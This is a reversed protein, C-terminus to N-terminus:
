SIRFERKPNREILSLTGNELIFRIQCHNLTSLRHAIIFTTRGKMLRGLAEVILSETQIDVSSTPEDLILIPTNKLFARALAIRQREGGSLTMGREGIETNYGESLNKIFEHANAQKAAEVIQAELADPQGYSINERVTTAFLIPEQLVISFQNRLDAIRYNRIDVGDLYICGQDPDYFRLLLSMLTSKGAGTQGQIGICSGAKAEFSIDKLIYNDRNYAFTVGEFKIKGAAHSLAKAGPNDVIQPSKDLVIFVREASALSSALGTSTKTINQLPGFIQGIYTMIMILEGLSLIGQQVHLVGVYLVAATGGGIFLALLIEFKIRLIVAGIHDKIKINTQKEFREQERDEQRFAKVIRISSLVEQVVSMAQSDSGKISNWRQRLRDGFIRVLIVLFPATALAIIALQWDLHLTIVVISILPFWATLLPILAHILISEISTADFQIRYTSSTSGEIDHFSFTHEQVHRFLRSRLLLVLKEGTYTQLLWSATWQISFLIPTAFILGVAVLLLNGKSQSIWQPLFISLYDPLQEGGVVNDVIIKIPVPNLLTIPTALLSLLVIGCLHLWYPRAIKFLRWLLTASSYQLKQSM